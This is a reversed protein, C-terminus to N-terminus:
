ELNKDGEVEFNEWFDLYFVMVYKKFSFYKHFFCTLDITFKNKIFQLVNIKTQMIFLPRFLKHLFIWSGCISSLRWHESFFIKM